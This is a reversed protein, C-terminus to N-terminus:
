WVCASARPCSAAQVAAWSPPSGAYDEAGGKYELYCRMPKIYVNEGVKVFQGQKIGGETM